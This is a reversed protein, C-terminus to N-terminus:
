DGVSHLPLRRTQRILCLRLARVAIDDQAQRLIVRDFSSSEMRDFICPEVLEGQGEASDWTVLFFITPSVPSSGTVEVIDVYRELWASSIVWLHM